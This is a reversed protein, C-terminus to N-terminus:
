GRTLAQLQTNSLRQTWYQLKRIHGNLLTSPSGSGGHGVLLRDVVPVEGSSSTKRDGDTELIYDNEMFSIAAKNTTASVSQLLNSHRTTGKYIQFRIDPTGSVTFIMSEDVQGGGSEFNVLRGFNNFDSNFECVVTGVGQRYWEAFNSGTISCLDASRTVSSAETKIYSSPFSAM